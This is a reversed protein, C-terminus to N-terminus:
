LEAADARVQKAITHIVRHGEGGAIEALADELRENRFRWAIAVFRRFAASRRGRVRKPRLGNAMTAGRDLRITQALSPLIGALHAPVIPAASCPRAAHGCSERGNGQQPAPLSINKGAARQQFSCM